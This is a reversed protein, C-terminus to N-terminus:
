DALEIRVHRMKGNEGPFDKFIAEALLPVLEPLSRNRSETEATAEYVMTGDRKRIEVHLDARYVTRVVIDNNFGPGYLGFGPNWWGGWGYGRQWFAPGSNFARMKERGDNISVDFGIIYDPNDDRAGVFGVREAMAQLARGYQRYELSDLKSEDIPVLTVKVGASPVETHFSTVNSNFTSACASLVM